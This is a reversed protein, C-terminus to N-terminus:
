RSQHKKYTTETVWVSFLAPDAGFRWQQKDDCQHWRPSGHTRHLDHDDRIRRHAKIVADAVGKQKQVICFCRVTLLALIELSYAM